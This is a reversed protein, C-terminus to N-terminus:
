QGSRQRYKKAQDPDIAKMKKLLDNMPKPRDVDPKGPGDEDALKRGPEPDPQRTTREFQIM